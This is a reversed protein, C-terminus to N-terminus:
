LVLKRMRLAMIEALEAAAAKLETERTNQVRKRCTELIEDASKGTAFILFVFGHQEEYARNAEALAALTEPSGSRARSQEAASVAEKPQDGIRPHAAFAELLDHEGLSALVARARAFLARGSDFPREQAITDVFRSSACCAHLRERLTRPSSTAFLRAAADDRAADTLKGFARLRSVGGDPFVKLRLHTFPGRSALDGFFHRTHGMLKTRALVTHFDGGEGDSGELMSTDPFNGLFFATDIEVRELM